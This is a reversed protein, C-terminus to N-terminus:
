NENYNPMPTERFNQVIKKRETCHTPMQYAKLGM